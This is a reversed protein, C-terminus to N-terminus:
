QPTDFGAVNLANVVVAHDMPLGAHRGVHAAADMLMGGPTGFVRADFAAAIAAAHTADWADMHAAHNAHNTNETM